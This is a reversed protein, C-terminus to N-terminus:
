DERDDTSMARARDLALVLGLEENSMSQFSKEIDAGMFKDAMARKRQIMQDIKEEIGGRAVMRHVVVKRSQGIRHVRDTAQDEWAPNWWLDFHIVHSAETLNLGKGGANITLVMFPPGDECQFEAVSEARRKVPTKGDLILGRRGFTAALFEALPETLTAYQTFVLAKEGSAVIEEAIRRLRLFKDSVAPEFDGTGLYLDPHDCIQKLQSILNLVVGGRGSEGSEKIREQGAVLAQCYLEAQTETLGCYATKVVKEPMELAIEPDSKRRRLVFPQIKARLEELAVEDERARRWQKRFATATGLAGPNLFDMLSWLDGPHNEIPTGTLAVRHRSSLSKLARALKTSSNKIMQAEDIVVTDWKRERLQPRHRLTAYSTLVIESSMAKEMDGFDRHAITYHIGRAFKELEEQWNGILSAPVVLLLPCVGGKRRLGVILAIVQVTKGLGMDDALLAGVGLTSLMAMWAVGARQYPRLVGYFDRDPAFEDLIEQRRIAGRVRAFWPGAVFHEGQGSESKRPSDLTKIAEIFPVQGRKRQKESARWVAMATEIRARDLEVWRERIRVLGNVSENVLQCWEARSLEHEDVIYTTRVDLMGGMGAGSPTKGGLYARTSLRPPKRQKWWQPVECTIGMEELAPIDLLLAHADRPILSCPGFLEQSDLLRRLTSSREAAKELLDYIYEGFKPVNSEGLLPGRVSSLSSTEGKSLGDVYYIVLVFPYSPSNSQRIALYLDGIRLWEGGMFEAVLKQGEAAMLESFWEKQAKWLVRQGKLTLKSYQPIRRARRSWSAFLTDPIELRARPDVRQTLVCHIFLSRMWERWFALDPPLQSFGEKRLLHLLGYTASQAFASACRKATKCSDYKKLRPDDEDVM